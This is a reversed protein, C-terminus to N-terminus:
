PVLNLLSMVRRSVYLSASSHAFSEAFASYKGYTIHHTIFLPYKDSGWPSLGEQSKAVSTTSIFGQISICMSQRLGSSSNVRRKRMECSVASLSCYRRIALSTFDVKSSPAPSFKMIRASSHPLIIWCIFRWSSLNAETGGGGWFGRPGLQGHSFLFGLRITCTTGLPPWGQGYYIPDVALHQRSV